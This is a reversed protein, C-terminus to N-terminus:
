GRGCDRVYFSIFKADLLRSSLSTAAGSFDDTREASKAVRISECMTSARWLNKLALDQLSSARGPVSGLNVDFPKGATRSQRVALKRTSKTV